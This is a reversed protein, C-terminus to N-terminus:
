HAYTVLQFLDTCNNFTSLQVVKCRDLGIILPHILDQGDHMTYVVPIEDTTLLICCGNFVSFSSTKFSFYCAINPDIFIKVQHFSAVDTRSCEYKVSTRSIVSKTDGLWKVTRSIMSQKSGLRAVTHYNLPTRYNM